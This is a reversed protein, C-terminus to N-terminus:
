WRETGERTEALPRGARGGGFVEVKADLDRRRTPRLMGQWRLVRATDSMLTAHGRLPLCRGKGWMGRLPPLLALAVQVPLHDRRMPFLM